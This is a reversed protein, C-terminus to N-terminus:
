QPQPKVFNIIREPFMSLLLVIVGILHIGLTLWALEPMFWQVTAGNTSQISTNWEGLYVLGVFLLWEVAVVLVAGFATLTKGIQPGVSQERIAFIVYLGVLVIGGFLFVYSWINLLQYWNENVSEKMESSTYKLTESYDFGEIWVKADFLRWDGKYKADITSSEYKGSRTMFPFINALSLLLCLFLYFAAGVITIGIKMSDQINQKGM